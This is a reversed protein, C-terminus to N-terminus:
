INELLTKVCLLVPEKGSEDSPPENLHITYPVGAALQLRAIRGYTLDRTGARDGYRQRTIVEEWM